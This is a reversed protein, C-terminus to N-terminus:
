VHLRICASVCVYVHIRPSYMDIYKYMYIYAYKHKHIYFVYVYVYRYAQANTCTNSDTVSNERLKDLTLKRHIGYIQILVCILMCMHTDPWFM